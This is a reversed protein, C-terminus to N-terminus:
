EIQKVAEQRLWKLWDAVCLREDLNQLKWIWRSLEEDNMARISDAKTHALCKWGECVSSPRVIPMGKQGM